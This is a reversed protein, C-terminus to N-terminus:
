TISKVKLENLYSRADDISMNGEIKIIKVLAETIEVAMRAEGCIYIYANNKM